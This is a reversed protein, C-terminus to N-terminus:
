IRRDCRSGLPKLARQVIRRVLSNGNRFAEKRNVANQIKAHVDYVTQNYILFNNFFVHHANQIYKKVDYCMDLMDGDVSDCIDYFTAYDNAQIFYCEMKEKHSNNASLRITLQIAKSYDTDFSGKDYPETEVDIKYGGLMTYQSM